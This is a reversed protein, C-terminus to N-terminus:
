KEFELSTVKSINAVTPTQLILYTIVIISFQKHSETVGKILNNYISDFM